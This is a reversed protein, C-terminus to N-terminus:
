SCIRLSNKTLDRSIYSGYICSHAYSVDCIAKPRNLLCFERSIANGSIIYVKTRHICIEIFKFTELNSLLFKIQFITYSINILQLQTTVRHCYVNVCLCYM